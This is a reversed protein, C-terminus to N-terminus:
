LLQVLFFFWPFFGGCCLEVFLVRSGKFVNSFMWLLCFSYSICNKFSPFNVLYAGCKSAKGRLASGLERHALFAHVVSFLGPIQPQWLYKFYAPLFKYVAM